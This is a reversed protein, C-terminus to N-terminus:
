SELEGLLHQWEHRRRGTLWTLEAVLENGDRVITIGLLAIPREHDDLVLAPQVEHRHLKGLLDEVSWPSRHAIAPLFPSWLHFTADLFKPTTPIPVLHPM